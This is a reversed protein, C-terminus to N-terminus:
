AGGPAPLDVVREHVMVGDLDHFRLTVTGADADFTLTPLHPAEARWAFQDDSLSNVFPNINGSTTCVELLRGSTSSPTEALTGIYNMHIDGTVFIVHSLGEDDILDTIEARDDPHGQWREPAGPYPGDTLQIDAFPKDTAVCVFRCPSTRLREAFWDLQARSMLSPSSGPAQREYRCDLLIVEVTAGWRFSRWVPGVGQGAIPMTRWWAAKAQAMKTQEDLDDTWPMLDTNDNVEHDDWAIWANGRPYVKRYSGAHVIGWAQLYQAETGGADWVRDMYGQDGVHVVVDFPVATTGELLPYVHPEDDLQVYDPILSGQGVCSLVALTLPPSEDLVPLTHFRGILSRGTPDDEPGTTWMYGYSKGPELGQVTTKVYGDPDTDVSALYVVDDPDGDTWVRITKATADSVFVTLVVTSVTADGAMVTRPFLTTDEPVSTPDFLPEGTGDGGPDACAAAAAAAALQLARRRSLDPM